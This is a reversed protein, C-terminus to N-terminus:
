ILKFTALVLKSCNQVVSFISTAIKAVIETSQPSLSSNIIQTLPSSITCIKECLNDFVCFLNLIFNDDGSSYDNPLKSCYLKLFNLIWEVINIFSYDKSIGDAIRDFLYNCIFSILHNCTNTQIIKMTVDPQIEDSDDSNGLAGRVETALKAIFSSDLHM